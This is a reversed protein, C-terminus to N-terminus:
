CGCWFLMVCICLWLGGVVGFCAFGGVFCLCRMVIVDLGCLVIDGLLGFGLGLCLLCCIILLFWVICCCIM